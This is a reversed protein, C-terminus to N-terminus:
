RKGSSKADILRSIMALLLAFLGLYFFIVIPSPVHVVFTELGRKHASYTGFALWIIAALFCFPALIGLRFLWRTRQSTM